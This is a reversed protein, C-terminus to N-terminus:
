ALSSRRLHLGNVGFRLILRFGSRDGHIDHHTCYATASDASLAGMREPASVEHAEVVDGDRVHLCRRPSSNSRGLCTYRDAAEWQCEM